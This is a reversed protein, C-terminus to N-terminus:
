VDKSKSEIQAMRRQIEELMKASKSIECDATPSNIEGTITQHLDRVHTNVMEIEREAQLFILIAIIALMPDGFFSLVFFLGCFVQACRASVVTAKSHNNMWIALSGRLVRGGDMPFCPLMNFVLLMINISSLRSLMDTNPFLELCVYFVPVLFLNVAPGALAVVIERHPKEPIEMLAVGGFPYLTVSRVMMNYYKGAICHGFEHLLVIVFVLAYFLGFNTDNYSVFALLLLWTWHLSVPIGLWKGLSLGM